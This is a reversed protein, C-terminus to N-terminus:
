TTNSGVDRKVKIKDIKGDPCTIEKHSTIEFFDSWPGTPLEVGESIGHSGLPMIGALSCFLFIHLINKVM